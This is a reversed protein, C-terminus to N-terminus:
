KGRRRPNNARDPVSNPNGKIDGYSVPIGLGRSLYDMAGQSKLPVKKGSYRPNQYRSNPDEFEEITPM